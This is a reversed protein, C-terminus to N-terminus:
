AASRRDAAITQLLVMMERQSTVLQEHSNILKDLNAANVTNAESSTHAAERWDDARRREAGLAIRVLTIMGTLIATAVGATILSALIDM